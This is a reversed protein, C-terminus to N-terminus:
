SQCRIGVVVPKWEGDVQIQAHIPPTHCKSAEIRAPQSHSMAGSIYVVAMVYNM